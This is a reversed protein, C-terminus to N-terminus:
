QPKPKGTGNRFTVLLYVLGALSVLASAFFIPPVMHMRDAFAWGALLAGMGIGAELAIYMTAMARGRHEPLSLDATLANSAPSFLGTAIGYIFAGVMLAIVSQAWGIILMSVVLLASAWKLVAIRGHRDSVRGAAFRVLLSAVTFVIFFTGKNTVGLHSSWDPVLTLVAGYSVYGLLTIIAAPLVRPELIEHASLKLFSVKFRQKEPHTEPLNGLILISLLAFLSSTYFLGNIGYQTTVFSGLAPGIAMGTSFCIGHFGMAEGWRNPAVVDAIYAATATPKFGTSFGHFLRLTLFGAVTGLMPYLFGCVFCVLSGIAMVPVRGITDTLKGSFPRSLGATVTFLAIILGKYGAGGLSSLYAPLEPILMNFSASFLFSSACLLGFRLTYLPAPAENM